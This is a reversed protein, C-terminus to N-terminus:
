WVGLYADPALSTALMVSNIDAHEKWSDAEKSRPELWFKEIEEVLPVYPMLNKVLLVVEREGFGHKEEVLKHLRQVAKLGISLGFERFALRYDAPLTLPREKLYLELSVYAAELLECLLDTRKWYGRSILEAVKYANCLVEGVGLPDDTVLERGKYIAAIDAIESELRLQPLSNRAIAQLQNYTIFGDLPDHQGMSPVLPRSLDISMKWYMKRRGDPATYVFTSHATKALEIAWRIYVSNGAALGVKSLAHMWKTLYHYYQGDRKWELEWDAPEDPKRESLEKGIRLGGITPHEEAERDNLGSIWGRRVDDDRHKGLVHHVQNVLRLALEKYSERKTRRYLELYDCTAFADTWLYRKPKGTLLGTNQAFADMIKQVVGLNTAGELMCLIKWVAPKLNTFM